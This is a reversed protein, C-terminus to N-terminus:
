SCKKPLPNWLNDLIFLWLCFLSLYLFGQTLGKRSALGFLLGTLVSCGRLLLTMSSEITARMTPLAKHHLYGFMLPELLGALLSLVLMTIFCLVSHNQAMIWYGLGYLLPSLRLMKIFHPKFLYAFAEGPIRILGYLSLFVGFYIYPLGFASLLLQWFEELYIMSAGLFTYILALHLLDPQAKIFLRCGKLYESFHTINKSGEASLPPKTSTHTFCLCCFFGLLMSISSIWYCLELPYREALLGGLISGFSISFWYIMQGRGLIKEFHMEQKMESLSEYLLANISGSSCANGFSSLMIVIFFVVPHHALLLLTFELFSIFSGVLVLRKHGFRDSWIGSPLELVLTLFGYLMETAITLPITMGRNTWFIREIAYAPAFAKLFLYIYYIIINKKM